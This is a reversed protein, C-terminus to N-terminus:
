QLLLAGILHRVSGFNTGEMISRCQCRLADSRGGGQLSATSACWFMMHQRALVDLIHSNFASSHHLHLFVYIDLGSCGYTGHGVVCSVGM